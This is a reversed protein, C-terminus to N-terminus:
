RQFLELVIKKSLLVVVKTELRTPENDEVRKHVNANRYEKILTLVSWTEPPFTYGIKVLEKFSQGLGIRSNIKFLSEKKEDFYVQHMCIEMVKGCMIISSVYFGRLFLQVVEKYTRKIDEKVDSKSISLLDWNISFEENAVEQETLLKAIYATCDGAILFCHILEQSRQEGLQKIVGALFNHMHDYGAFMGNYFDINKDGKYLKKIVQYKTLGITSIQDSLARVTKMDTYVDLKKM